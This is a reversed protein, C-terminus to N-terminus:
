RAHPACRQRVPTYHSHNSAFPAQSPQPARRVEAALRAGGKEVGDDTRGENCAPSRTPNAVSVYLVTRRHYFRFRSVGALHVLCSQIGDQEANMRLLSRKLYSLDEATGSLGHVLVILHQLDQIKNIQPWIKREAIVSQNFNTLGIELPVGFLFNTEQM